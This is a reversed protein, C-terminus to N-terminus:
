RLNEMYSCFSDNEITLYDYLKVGELNEFIYNAFHMERSYDGLRGKKAIIIYEGDCDKAFKEIRDFDVRDYTLISLPALWKKIVLFKKNLAVVYVRGGPRVFSDLLFYTGYTSSHVFPCSFLKECMGRIYGKMMPSNMELVDNECTISNENM